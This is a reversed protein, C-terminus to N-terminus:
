KGVMEGLRGAVFEFVARYRAMRKLDEHMVLWVPFEVAFAEPLLHVLAQERRALHDQCIGIGFGARIAALQAVSNDVRLSFSERQLFPFQALIPRMYPLITDFGILSHQTLDAVTQPTGQQQLYRQHAYLGLTVNGIRKAVLVDQTPQAMRIAIDADRNLLDQNQDSLVLEIKLGPHAYKLDALIPPLIETGVVESATLRVTGRVDNAEAPITRELAAATMKLNEAFPKLALASVTPTLGTQSRTFLTVGLARELAEVQRGVTPQTLGLARAAASLSGEELVALVVRYHEWNVHHKDM